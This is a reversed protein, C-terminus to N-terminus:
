RDYIGMVNLKLIIILFSWSGFYTFIYRFLFKVSLYKPIGLMANITIAMFVM